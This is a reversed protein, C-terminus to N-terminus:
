QERLNKDLVEIKRVAEDLAGRLEGGDEDELAEKARRQSMMGKLSMLAEHAEERAREFVAEATERTNYSLGRATDGIIERTRHGSHPALMMGAISGLVSGIMLGTVFRNGDKQM